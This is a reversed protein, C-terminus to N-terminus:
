KWWQAYQYLICKDNPITLTYSNQYKKQKFGLLCIYEGWVINLGLSSQVMTIKAKNGRDQSSVSICAVRIRIGPYVLWPAKEQNDHPKSDLRRACQPYLHPMLVPRLLKKIRPGLRHYMSGVGPQFGVIYIPWVLQHWAAM